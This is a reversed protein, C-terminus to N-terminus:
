WVSGGAWTACRHGMDETSDERYFSSQYGGSSYSIDLLFGPIQVGLLPVPIANTFGSQSEFPWNAKRVENSSAHKFHSYQNHVATPSNLLSKTSCIRSSRRILKAHMKTVPLGLM